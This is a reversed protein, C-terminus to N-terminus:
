FCIAFVHGFASVHANHGFWQVCRLNRLQDVQEFARRGAFLFEDQIQDGVAHRSANIFGGVDLGAKQRGHGLTFHGGGQDIFFVGDFQQAGHQTAVVDGSQHVQQVVLFQAFRSGFLKFM